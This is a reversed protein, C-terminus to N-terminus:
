NKKKVLVGENEKFKYGILVNNEFIEEGYKNM